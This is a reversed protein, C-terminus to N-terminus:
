GRRARSGYAVPIISADVFSLEDPIPYVHHAPVLAQTAYGGRATFAMVRMGVAIGTVDAGVAIVAGAIESGPIFPLEPKTQYKGAVILGDPFNVGAASVEILVEDAGPVLDPREEFRLVEPEGLEHCVLAQM